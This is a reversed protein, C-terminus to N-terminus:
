KIDPNTLKPHNRSYYRRVMLLLAILVLLAIVAFVIGLITGADAGNKGTQNFATLKPKGTQSITTVVTKTYVPQLPNM